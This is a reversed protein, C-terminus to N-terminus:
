FISKESTDGQVNDTASWLKLMEVEYDMCKESLLIHESFCQTLSCLCACILLRVCVHLFIPIFYVARSSLM